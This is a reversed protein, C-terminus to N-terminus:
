FLLNLVLIERGSVRKNTSHIGDSSSINPETASTSASASSNNDQYLMTIGASDVTNDQEHEESDATGPRRSERSSPEGSESNTTPINGAGERKVNVRLDEGEDALMPEQSSTVVDQDVSTVSSGGSASASVSVAVSTPAAVTLSRGLGVGVGVSKKGHLRELAHNLRHKKFSKLYRFQMGCVDCTFLKDAPLRARHNQEKHKAYASRYRYSQGCQECIFPKEEGPGVHPHQLAAHQELLWVNPFHANCVVCRTEEEITEGTSSSGGGGGGGGGGGSSFLSSCTDSPSKLMQSLHQHNMLPPTSSSSSSSTGKEKAEAQGSALLLQTYQRLGTADVIVSGAGSSGVGLIPTRRQRQLLQELSEKYLQASRESPLEVITVEDSDASSRKCSDEGSSLDNSLGTTTSSTAMQQPSPSSKTAKPPERQYFATPTPYRLNFSGPAPQKGASSSTATTATATATPTATSPQGPQFDKTLLDSLTTFRHPFDKPATLM